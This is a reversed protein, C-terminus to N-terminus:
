SAEKIKKNSRRGIAKDARGSQSRRIMGAVILLKANPVYCKGSETKDIIKDDFLMKVSYNVSGGPLHTQKIITKSSAAEEDSLHGTASIGKRGILYTLLKLNNNLADWEETFVFQQRNPDFQMYPGLVSKMLEKSLADIDILGTQADKM